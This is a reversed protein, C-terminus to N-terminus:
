RLSEADKVFEWTFDCFSAVGIPSNHNHSAICACDGWVEIGKARAQKYFVLDGNLGPEDRLYPEEMAELADRRMMLCGFGGADMPILSNKLAQGEKDTLIMPENLYPVNELGAFFAHVEKLLPEYFNNVAKGHGERTEESQGILKYFQPTYMGRNGRRFYLGSVIPLDRRSLVVPMDPPHQMDEDVIFLFESDNKHLFDYIIRNRNSDVRCSEAWIVGGYKKAAHLQDSMALVNAPFSGSVYKGTYLGLVVKGNGM